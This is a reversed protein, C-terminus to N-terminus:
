LEPLLRFFECHRPKIARFHRRDLTAILDTNLREALVAVSADVGGLPFDGYERVLAAIRVWDEVEPGLVPVRVLGALFLAETEPGARGAIFYSAEAVCLMPVVFDYAPSRLLEACRSHHGDRLDAAAILVNADLVVVSM